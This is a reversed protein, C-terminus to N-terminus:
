SVRGYTGEVLQKFAPYKPEIVPVKIGRISRYEHFDFCKNLTEWLVIDKVSKDINFSGLANGNTVYYVRVINDTSIDIQYSFVEEMM